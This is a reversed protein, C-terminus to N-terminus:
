QSWGWKNPAFLARRDAWSCAFRFSSYKHSFSPALTMPRAKTSCLAPAAASRSPDRELRTFHAGTAMLRTVLVADGSGLDLIDESAKEDLLALVDAGLAPVFGVNTAYDKASWVQGAIILPSTTSM